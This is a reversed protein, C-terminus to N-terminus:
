RDGSSIRDENSFVGIPRNPNGFSMPRAATKKAESSESHIVPVDSRTSPPAQALVYCDM